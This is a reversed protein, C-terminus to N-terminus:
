RPRYARALYEHKKASVGGHIGSRGMGILGFLPDNASFARGRARRTEPTAVPMLVALDQRNRQLIRAQQTHRVDEALRLLEPSDTVDIAQLERAMNVDGNESGIIVCPRQACLESDSM